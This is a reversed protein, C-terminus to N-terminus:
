VNPFQGTDFFRGFNHQIEEVQSVYKHRTYLHNSLVQNIFIIINSRFKFIYFLQITSDSHTGVPIAMARNTVRGPRTVSRSHSGQTDQLMPHWYLSSELMYIHEIYFTLIGHSQDTCLVIYMVCLVNLCMRHSILAYRQTSQLYHWHLSGSNRMTENDILNERTSTRVCEDM